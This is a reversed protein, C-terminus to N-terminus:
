FGASISAKHIQQLLTRQLQLHVLYAVCHLRPVCLGAHFREAGSSHRPLSLGVSIQYFNLPWLWLPTLQISIMTLLMTFCVSVQCIKSIDPKLRNWWIDPKRFAESIHFIFSCKLFYTLSQNKKMLKNNMGQSQKPFAGTQLTTKVVLNPQALGGLFLFLDTM